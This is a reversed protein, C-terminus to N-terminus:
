AIATPRSATAKELRAISYFIAPWIIASLLLGIQILHPHQLFLGATMVLSGLAGTYLMAIIFRLSNQRNHAWFAILRLTHTGYLWTLTLMASGAILWATGSFLGAELLLLASMAMLYISNYRVYHVPSRSAWHPFRQLLYGFSALAPVGYIGAFLLGYSTESTDPLYLFLALLILSHLGAAFGLLRVPTRSVPRWLRSFFGNNKVKEPAIALCM